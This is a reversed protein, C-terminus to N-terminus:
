KINMIKWPTIVVHMHKKESTGRISSTCSEYRSYAKKRELLPVVSDAESLEVSRTYRNRPLGLESFFDYVQFLLIM